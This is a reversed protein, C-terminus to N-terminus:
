RLILHIAKPFQKLPLILGFAPIKLLAMMFTDGESVTKTAPNVWIRTDEVIGDDLVTVEGNEITKPVSTSDADYMEVNILDLSSTGGTVATFSVTALTGATDVTGSTDVGFIYTITGATNDITGGGSFSFMTGVTVIDATVIL